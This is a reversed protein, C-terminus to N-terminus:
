YFMREPVSILVYAFTFYQLIFDVLQLRARRVWKCENTYNSNRFLFFFFFSVNYFIFWYIVFILTYGCDISNRRTYKPNLLFMRTGTVVFEHDENSQKWQNFLFFFMVILKCMCIFTHVHTYIHVQKKKKNVLTQIVWFLGKNWNM